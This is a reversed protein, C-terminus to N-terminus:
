EITLEGADEGVSNSIKFPYTGSPLNKPIICKIESTGSQPDM